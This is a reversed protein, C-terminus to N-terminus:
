GRASSRVPQLYKTLRVENKKRGQSSYVIEDMLTKMLYVGLGGRRYHALHNKLDLPKMSTPDFKTGEDVIRVEFRNKERMVSVVIDKTPDNHYAHKIINTCAEDVALAIKSVEDEPFGFARAAGSVFERVELLQDTRSLIKKTLVKPM